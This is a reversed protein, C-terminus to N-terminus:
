YLNFLCKKKQTYLFFYKPNIKFATNNFYSSFLGSDITEYYFYATILLMVTFYTVLLMIRGNTTNLHNM